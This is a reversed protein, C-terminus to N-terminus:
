KIGELMLYLKKIKESQGISGVVRARILSEILFFAEAETLPVICGSEPGIIHIRDERIRIEHGSKTLLAM